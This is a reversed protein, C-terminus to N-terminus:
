VCVTSFHVLIVLLSYNFFYLILITYNLKYITTEFYKFDSIEIIIKLITFGLIILLTIYELYFFFLNLENKCLHTRIVIILSAILSFIALCYNNLFNYWFSTINYNRKFKVVFNTWVRKLFTKKSINEDYLSLVDDETYDLTDQQSNNYFAEAFNNTENATEQQQQQM